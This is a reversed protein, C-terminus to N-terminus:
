LIVLIYEVSTPLNGNSVLYVGNYSGDKPARVCLRVDAPDEQNTEVWYSLPTDNHPSTVSIIMKTMNTVEM